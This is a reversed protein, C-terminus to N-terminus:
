RVWEVEAARRQTPGADGKPHGVCCAAMLDQGEPMHLAKRVEPDEKGFFLFGMYCTGLGMAEAALFLNEAALQCDAVAAQNGKQATIVILAPAGYFINYGPASIMAAIDEMPMQEAVRQDDMIQKVRANVGSLVKKNTVVIFRWPQLNMATPALIALDILKKLQEDSVPEGTYSRVSRRRKLVEYFDPM